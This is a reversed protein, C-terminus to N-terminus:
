CAWGGDVDICQGTLYASSDGLLFCIPGVVDDAHGVRRLPVERAYAAYGADGMGQTMATQLLGPAIANARMGRPGLERALGRVAAELGSKAASYAVMGELGSRALNSSIFVLSATDRVAGARLLSRCLRLPATLDLEVQHTLPDVGDIEDETFSARMSVGANFVVGDLPAGSLVITDVVAQVARGDALDAEIIEIGLERQWRLEPSASASRQVGVVTHGFRHLERVAAAGIGRSSGTILFRRGSM